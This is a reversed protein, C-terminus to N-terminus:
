KPVGQRAHTIQQCLAAFRPEEAAALRYIVPTPRQRRRSQRLAALALATLLAPAIRRLHHGASPRKSEGHPVYPTTNEWRRADLRAMLTPGVDTLPSLTM